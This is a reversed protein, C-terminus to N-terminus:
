SSKTMICQSVERKSQQTHQQIKQSLSIREFEQVVTGM